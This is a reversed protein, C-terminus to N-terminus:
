VVFVIFNVKMKSLIKYDSIVYDIKYHSIIIYVRYHFNKTYDM